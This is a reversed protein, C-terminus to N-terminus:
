QGFNIGLEDVLQKGPHNDDANAGEAAGPSTARQAKPPNVPQPEGEAAKQSQGKVVGKRFGFSELEKVRNEVTEEAQAIAKSGFHELIDNQDWTWFGEKNPAQAYRSPTLFKLGDKDTNGARGFSEAASEINDILKYYGDDVETKIGHWRKVFDDAWEMYKEREDSFIKHRLPDTEKMEDMKSFEEYARGAEKLTSRVQPTARIENLEGRLGDITQEYDKKVDTVIEDRFKDRRLVERDAPQITPKNVRVYDMFESDQDDFSRNPDERKSKEVYEDLNKYFDLLKDAKGAHKGKSEAYRYLELEEKQEGILQGEYTDIKEEPKPPEPEDPNKGRAELEERVVKRFTDEDLKPKVTFEKKPEAEPEAEEEKAEAEEVPAEPEKPPEPEPEPEEKPTEGEPPEEAKVGLDDWLQSLMPDDLSSTPQEQAQEQETAQPEQTTTAETQPAEEVATTTEAM